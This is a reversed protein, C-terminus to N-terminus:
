TVTRDLCETSLVARMLTSGLFDCHFKTLLHYSAAYDTANVSVLIKMDSSDDVFLITNNATLAECRCPVTILLHESPHSREPLKPAEPNLCGAGVTRPKQPIHLAGADFNQLDRCWVFVRTASCIIWFVM